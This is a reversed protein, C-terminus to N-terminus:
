DKNNLEVKMWSEMLDNKVHYTSDNLYLNRLLGSKKQYTSDEKYEYYIFLTDQNEYFLLSDFLNIWNITDADFIALDAKEKPWTNFRQKYSFSAAHLYFINDRLINLKEKIELSFSPILHNTCGFLIFLLLIINIKMKQM